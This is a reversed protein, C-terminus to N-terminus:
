YVKGMLDLGYLNLFKLNGDLDYVALTRGQADYIYYSGTPTISGVPIYKKFIRNGDQNYSFEIVEGNDFEIKVPLNQHNYEINDNSIGKSADKILNGNADYNYNGEQQGMYNQVYELKNSNDYYNYSRLSGSGTQDNRTLEEINGMVDYTIEPVTFWDQAHWAPTTPGNIAFHAKTLRSLDDYYYIYRHYKSKYTGYSDGDPRNTYYGAMSINGNYQPLVGGSPADYFDSPIDDYYLHMSFNTGTTPHVGDPANINALWDRTTYEYDLIESFVGASQEAMSLAKVQGSPWYTYYL